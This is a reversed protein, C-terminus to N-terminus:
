VAERNSILNMMDRHGSGPKRIRPSGSRGDIFHKQSRPIPHGGSHMGAKADVVMAGPWVGATRMVSTTCVTKRKTDKARHHVGEFAPSTSRIKRCRNRRWASHKGARAMLSAGQPRTGASKRKDSLGARCGCNFRREWYDWHKDPGSSSPSQRRPLRRHHNPRERRSAEARFQFARNAAPDDARVSRPPGQGDRAPTRRRRRTRFRVNMLGTGPRAHCGPSTSTTPAGPRERRSSLPLRSDPVPRNQGSISLRTWTKVADQVLRDHGLQCRRDRFVCRLAQRVRVPWVRQVEPVRVPAPPPIPCRTGALDPLRAFGPSRV